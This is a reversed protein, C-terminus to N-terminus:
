DLGAMQRLLSVMSSQQQQMIALAAVANDSLAAYRGQILSEADEDVTNLTDLADEVNTEFDTLMRGASAVTIDAFANVRGEVTSLKALAEDVVRIAQSSLTGLGALSGGSELSSLLGSLGGLSEPFLGPLALKVRESSRTSLSFQAVNDNGITVSSFAGTFGAVFEVAVSVGQSLYTVRNGDINANSVASGNITVVADAGTSVSTTTFTGSNVTLAITAADGYDVTTFDIRNGSVSATIGTLHSDLNIRDRVATLAEGATVSITTSGRQGQLTFTANGSNITGAAGNYRIITQTAATAVSGSIVTDGALSFVDINKIQSPDKGTYSYDHSGDLFRKGDISTRALTRIAAIASDITAQNTNKEAVTLTNDEDEVLATRITNLQTRLEDLTTQLGAGINAAADVNSQLRQLLSLENEFSSVELFASPNDSPFNVKRGTAMRFSSANVAQNSRSLQTLLFQEFSGITSGIRSM